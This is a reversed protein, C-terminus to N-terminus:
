YGAVPLVQDEVYNDLSEDAMLPNSAVAACTEEAEGTGRM